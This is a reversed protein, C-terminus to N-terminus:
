REWLKGNCNPNKNICYLFIEKEILTDELGTHSEVFNNNNTLFRYLIEATYRNGGRSTVYGNEQCFTRYKEDNGLVERSMKLSDWLEVGYPLFYRYKSCTLFRQTTNVARYDFSSNHAVFIKIDYKAVVEKLTFYITKYRCLKRKGNKIDEWYQPIKEKFYAYEMLDKNLFIDAVVYSHKEYINGDTDMVTFGFDYCLPDDLSNTTETDFIIIKQNEM